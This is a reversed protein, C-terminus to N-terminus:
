PQLVSSGAFACYSFAVCPILLTITDRCLRARHNLEPMHVDLLLLDFGGQEALALVERGNSALRVRHGQRVLAQELVQASLENDEAVLIHLPTAAPVPATSAQQRDTPWASPVNGQSRSMVRYIADLLEDQQVPKLLQADIRLERSRAPDGPREGSTLLIIRTTALEARERRRRM